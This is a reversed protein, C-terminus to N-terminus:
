RDRYVFDLVINSLHYENAADAVNRITGQFPARDTITQVDYSVDYTGYVLKIVENLFVSTSTHYRQGNVLPM